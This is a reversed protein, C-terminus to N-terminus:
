EITEIIGTRDDTNVLIQDAVYKGCEIMIEDKLKQTDAKKFKEYLTEM